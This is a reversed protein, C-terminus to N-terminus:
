PGTIVSWASRGYTAARLEKTSPQVLLDKVDVMPFGDNYPQWQYWTPATGVWRYVGHNTGVYAINESYGDGSIVNLKAFEKQLPFGQGIFTPDAQPNLPDLDLSLRLIRTHLNNGGTNFIVYLVDRNTPAFAMSVVSANHDHGYLWTWTQGEDESYWIQGANTGAFWNFTEPQFIVKETTGFGNPDWKTGGDTTFHTRSLLSNANDPHVTIYGNGGNFNQPLGNNALNWTKGGDESRATSDLTQFQAYMVQDNSNPGILSYYGDGYHFIKLSRWMDSGEYLVTGNDQTGGIMLNKNTQSADFDYFMTVRLENNKHVCNDTFRPCRWIGGDNLVFYYGSDFPDFELAKMDDHINKVVKEYNQGLYLMTLKVGGYFVMYWDTPHVKIFDNYGHFKGVGVLDWKDGKNTSRYIEVFGSNGPPNGIALYIYSPIGKYIDLFVSSTGEEMAPLGNSLEDWDNIDGMTTLGKDTRYLNDLVFLRKNEGDVTKWVYKCISAYVLSDDAPSVAMDRPIGDKILTWQNPFSITAWPNSSTYRKIGFNTAAYILVENDSPYRIVLGNNRKVGEAVEKTAFHYWNNGGDISKYIGYGGKYIQSGTAVYVIEPHKPDLAISSINMFSLKDGLPTWSDGADMTKWIGGTPAGAYIIKSDTPHFAIADMRGVSGYPFSPNLIRPGISAWKHKQPTPYLVTPGPIKVTWTKVFQDLANQFGDMSNPDMVVTIMHQGPTVEDWPIHLNQVGGPELYEILDCAFIPPEIIDSNNIAPKELSVGEIEIGCSLESDILFRVPINSITAFSPNRVSVPIIASEGPALQLANFDIEGFEIEPIPDAEGSIRVIKTQLNDEFNPDFAEDLYVLEAVIQHRGPGVAIWKAMLEAEDGPPLSAVSQRTIETGDVQFILQAASATGIGLNAVSTLLTIEDGPNAMDPSVTLSTVGLNPMRWAPVGEHFPLEILITLFSGPEGSRLEVSITNNEKLDIPAELSDVKQNFENPGFVQQDNVTIKASSIRYNENEDGNIIKIKGEFNVGSFTDTYINPKGKTRSYEIPGFLYEDAFSVNFLLSLVLSMAIILSKKM